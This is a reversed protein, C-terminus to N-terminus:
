SSWTKNCIELAQEPTFGNAIAADYKAKMSRAQFDWIELHVLWNEAVTKFAAILKKGSEIIDPTAM